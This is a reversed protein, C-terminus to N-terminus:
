EINIKVQPREAYQTYLNERYQNLLETQRKHLIVKLIQDEIYSLPAFDKEDIFDKVNLYYKFSGQKRELPRKRKIENMSWLNMPMLANIDKWSYWQDEDFLEIEFIDEGLLRLESYREDDWLNDLKENINEIQVKMFTCRIVPEELIYQSKTEEYYTQLDQQSVVTDLREHVLKQTYNMLILSSKYDEVMQDINLDPSLNLEAERM